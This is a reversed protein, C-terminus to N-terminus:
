LQAPCLAAPQQEQEEEDQEPLNSLCADRRLKVIKEKVKKVIIDHINEGYDNEMAEYGDLGLRPLLLNLDCYMSEFDMHNVVHEKIVSDQQADWRFRPAISRVHRAPVGFILSDQTRQTM